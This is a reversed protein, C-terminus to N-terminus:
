PASVALSRRVSKAAAYITSGSQRAVLSCSGPRLLTVSAGTRAWSVRCVSPTTTSYRVRLGSSARARVALTSGALARKPLAVFTITQAAKSVTFSRSVPAAPAYSVNGAQSAVVTCTGPRHLAVAAGNRSVHANCVKPTTTSFSVALGSSASARVTLASLAPARKPLLAFSITQGARSPAPAEVVVISRQVQPAPSYATDGAQNADVVCSGPATYGLTTGDIGSVNCVGAGSTADISFVV